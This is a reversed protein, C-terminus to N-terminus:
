ALGYFTLLYHCCNAIRMTPTAGFSRLHRGDDGWEIFKGANVGGALVDPPKETMKAVQPFYYVAPGIAFTDYGMPFQRCDVNECLESWDSLDQIKVLADMKVVEASAQTWISLFLNLFIFADLAANKRNIIFM